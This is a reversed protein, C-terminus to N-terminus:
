NAPPSALEQWMLVVKRRAYNEEKVAEWLHLHERRVELAVSQHCAAGCALEAFFAASDACVLWNMGAKLLPHSLARAGMGMLSM